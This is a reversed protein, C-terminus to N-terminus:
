QGLAPHTALLALAATGLILSLGKWFLVPDRELLPARGKRLFTPSPYRLDYLFESLEAYRQAPNPHVAKRLAGDVWAPLNTGPKLVSQYALKRQAAPTTARAVQTVYPQRGSLMQYAIVGLSFLDSAPTAPHSVFYEPATYLMTGAIGQVGM